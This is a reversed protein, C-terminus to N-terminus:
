LLFNCGDCQRRISKLVPLNKSLYDAIRRNGLDNPHCSDIFNEADSGLADYGDLVIVGPFGSAVEKQCAIYSSLNKDGGGPWPLPTFLIVPRGSATLAHLTKETELAESALAIAQSCDNVGFAVLAMDWPLEAVAAAVEANMVAGGVAVNLYDLDYARAVATGYAKSPSTTTMGQAISDGMLLLRRRTEAVTQFTANDALELSKVRLERLHPLYVTVRRLGCGPLDAQIRCEGKDAEPEYSRLPYGEVEVDCAQVDRAARLPLWCLHLCPSDTEFLLRVGTACCARIVAAESYSYLAKLRASMRALELLGDSEPLFESVGRYLRFDKNLNIRMLVGKESQMPLKLM